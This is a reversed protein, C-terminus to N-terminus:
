AVKELELKGTHQRARGNPMAGGPVRSPRPCKLCLGPRQSHSPLPMAAFLASNRALQPDLSSWEFAAVAQTALFAQVGGHSKAPCPGLPSLVLPRQWSKPEQM